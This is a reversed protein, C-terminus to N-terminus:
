MKNKYEKPSCGVMRKFVQYFYAYENYGVKEGVENVKCKPDELLRKAAKIRAKCLIDVFNEGTEARLLRSLYVPSIDFFTSVSTLTVAEAFHEHIHKLIKNVLLSYGKKRAELKMCIQAVLETVYDSLEKLSGLRNMEKLLQNNSKGMGLEDGTVHYYYRAASLCVEALLGRAVTINGDAYVGIIVIIRKTEEVLQALPVQEISQEFREIDMVVSTKRM